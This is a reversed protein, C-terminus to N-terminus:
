RRAVPRNSLHDLIRQLGRADMSGVATVVYNGDRRTEVLANKTDAVCCGFGGMCAIHNYMEFLTVTNLGNGYRLVAMTGGCCPCKDIYMGEAVYSRPLWRPELPPAGLLHTLKALNVPQAITSAAAPVAQAAVPRYDIAQVGMDSVVQHRFWTTMGLIVGTRRDIQILKDTPGSHVALAVVPQGAITGTGVIRSSVELPHNAEHGTLQEAARPTQYWIRRGDSGLACRGAAGDLALAYCGGSAQDLTYRATKGNSVAWGEAHYTVTRAAQQTFSLWDASTRRDLRQLHTWQWAVLAILVPIAILIALRWRRPTM